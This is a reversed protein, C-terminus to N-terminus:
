KPPMLQLSVVSPRKDCSSAVHVSARDYRRDVSLCAWRRGRGGAEAAPVGGGGAAPRDTRGDTQLPATVTRDRRHILVRCRATAFHAAVDAIRDLMTPSTHVAKTSIRISLSARRRSQGIGHRLESSRDIQQVLQKTCIAIYDYNVAKQISV